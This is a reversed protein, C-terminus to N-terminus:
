CTNKIKNKREDLIPIINFFFDCYFGPNSKCLDYDLQSNPENLILNKLNSLCKKSFFSVM